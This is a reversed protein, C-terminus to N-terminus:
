PRPENMKLQYCAAEAGNRVFLMDHAIVPHNWTKGDIAQFRCRERHGEPSADVLAAEGSESLVLLLDQDALLLVQGNDYGRERWKSKGKELDVCTFFKGDFGYLYGKHTVFDNFYPSIAKTTWDEKVKWDDGEKHVEVKRTGNNFGTGVLIGSDDVLAPQVIRAMGGELKWPHEWFIAGNTPNFATLGKETSIILQDTEHLRAPQPSSYSLQGDGASWALKGSAADYGLVSKNNPGGAFVTVVGQTVLPSASFGWIPVKADSDKVINSSWVVNGTPADLCNLQGAAGLAYIKGDHFTPTARPGPGGIAESFRAEDKHTWLEAGTATDYCVVVEDQGRQEQTYLRNGIVAFSSWGPGVPHRWLLRPPNKDWDTAISVGLLRNDRQPGRFGPWDGPQLVVPLTTDVKPAIKGALSAQYKQLKDESTPDWRYRIDAAINGDTGGFRLLTFYGWVLGIVLVLGALRAPRTLFPTFVLWLIWAGTLVPLSYLFYAFLGMGSWTPDRFMLAPIAFVICALLVLFRDSWRFGSLFLWWAAFVGAGIIPGLFMTMFHIGTNPALWAAGKVIAWQLVIIAVGLWLRTTPERKLTSLGSNAQAPPTPQSPVASFPSHPESM